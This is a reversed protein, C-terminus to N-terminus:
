CSPTSSRRSRVSRSTSATPPRTPTTSTPARTSCTRGRADEWVGMAIFSHFMTTLLASGDVMSADIVQGQGSRGTEPLAACIGAALMAGGGFDGIMLPAGGEVRAASRTSRASLAIYNIDHGATHAYPGEQGWGTM